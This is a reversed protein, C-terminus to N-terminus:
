SGMSPAVANQFYLVSVETKGPVGVNKIRSDIVNDIITAPKGRSDLKWKNVVEFKSM